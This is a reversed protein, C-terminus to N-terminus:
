RLKDQEVSKQNHLFNQQFIKELLAPNSAMHLYTLSTPFSRTDRSLPWYGPALM